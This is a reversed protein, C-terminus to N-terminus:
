AYIGSGAPSQPVKPKLDEAIAREMWSSPQAESSQDPVRPRAMCLYRLAAILDNDKDVPADKPANESRGPKSWRYRTMEKVLAPCDATILLANRQLREKVRNIGAMIANQGAFAHIGHDSYELQQSRGTVHNKNRASPDIVYWRPKIGHGENKLHILDCIQKATQGAEAIEDFVVMRDEADLYAWVVGTNHRIGPDIGVYVESGEPPSEAPILHKARSFEPYVLGHFSVFKGEKRAQREETSLGALVATKNEESLVPNDDMDATVVTIEPDERREYIEDFVWTMGLLPTMTFLEGGGTSIVRIRSETRIDQRPEEDYHIQERVVGGFKDVDMENSLFDIYSGCEFRLIRSQKDYARDFSGKYLEAKPVWKRITDLVAYLTHSLDKTIVRGRFPPDWRKYAHLHDPLAEKPLAQILDDIVGATTKGAQNGGAYLRVRTTSLLFPVQKVHPAFGFLPNAELTDVMVAAAKEAGKDSTLADLDYYTGNFFVERM